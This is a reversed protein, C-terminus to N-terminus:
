KAVELQCLIKMPVGLKTRYRSLDEKESFWAGQLAIRYIVSTSHAAESNEWIDQLLGARRDVATDDGLATRSPVDQGTCNM